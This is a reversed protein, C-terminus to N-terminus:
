KLESRNITVFHATNNVTKQTRTTKSLIISVYEALTILHYALNHCNEIQNIVDHGGKAKFIHSFDWGARFLANTWVIHPFMSGVSQFLSTRSMVEIIFDILAISCEIARLNVDLYLISNTTGPLTRRNLNIEVQRLTKIKRIARGIVGFLAGPHKM